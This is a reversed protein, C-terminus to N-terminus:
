FQQFSSLGHAYLNSIPIALPPNEDVVSSLSLRLVDAGLRRGFLHLLDKLRLEREPVHSEHRPIRSLRELIIGLAPELFVRSDLALRGRVATVLLQEPHMDRRLEALPRE